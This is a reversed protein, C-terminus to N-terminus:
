VVEVVEPSRLFYFALLLVAVPFVVVNFVSFIVSIQLLAMVILLASFIKLLTATDNGRRLLSAGLMLAFVAYVFLLGLGLFAANLLIIDITAASFSAGFFALFVDFLVTSLFLGVSIAMLLLALRATDFSVTNALARRLSVYLYIELVGIIVFLLDSANLTQIDNRFQQVFDTTELFGGGWYWPFLVALLIAAAAPLVYTNTQM